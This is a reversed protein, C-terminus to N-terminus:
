TMYWINAPLQFTAKIVDAQSKALIVILILMKSTALFFVFVFVIWFGVIGSFYASYFSCQHCENWCRHLIIYHLTFKLYQQWGRQHSHFCKSIAQVGVIRRGEALVEDAAAYDDTKSTLLLRSVSCNTSAGHALPPLHTGKKQSM